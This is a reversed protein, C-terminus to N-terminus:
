FIVFQKFYPDAKLEELYGWYLMRRQVKELNELCDEYVIIEEVLDEKKKRQAPIEYFKAIKKLEEVRYNEMYDVKKVYLLNETDGECDQLFFDDFTDFNEKNHINTESDDNEDNEDNEDNNENEEGNKEEDNQDDNENNENNENNESNDENEKNNNENDNKDEENNESNKRIAKRIMADFKKQNGNQYQTQLYILPSTYKLEGSNNKKLHMENLHVAYSTHLLDLARIKKYCESSFHETKFTIQEIKNNKTKLHFVIGVREYRNTAATNLWPGKMVGLVIIIVVFSNKEIDQFHTVSLNMKPFAEKLDRMHRCVLQLGEINKKDNYKFNSHILPLLKQFCSTISNNKNKNSLTSTKLLEFIFRKTVSMDAEARDNQKTATNLIFPANKPFFLETQINNQM